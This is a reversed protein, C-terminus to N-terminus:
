ILRGSLAGTLTFSKTGIWIKNKEPRASNGISSGAPEAM